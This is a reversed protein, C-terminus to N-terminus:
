ANLFDLPIPSPAIRTDRAPDGLIAVTSDPRLTVLGLGLAHLARPYLAHEAALVRAALTSPDDAPLVPVRAQAINAGRDYEDDVFHVTAGSESRKAAIVAEHVHHGYMGRGGFEPLLAPHVNVMAGRWRRTVVSPVLKLYGALAIMSIGATLLEREMAEGDDPASLWLAPIGAERALDLVPAKARNSLVLSPLLPTSAGLERFYTLIAAANTGGGSAFIALKGPAAAAATM